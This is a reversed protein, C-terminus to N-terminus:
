VKTLMSDVSSGYSTLLDQETLSTRWTANRDEARIMTGRIQVYPMEGSMNAIPYIRSRDVYKYPYYEVLGGYTDIGLERSLIEKKKPGVGSLYKIDQSFFDAM